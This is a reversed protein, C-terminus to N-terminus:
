AMVGLTPLDLLDRAEDRDMVELPLLTAVIQSLQEPNSRLFVSTDFTVRHGRPTVDNMSLRESINLMVPTLATDLLQRYLDVRNSYTLSSGPVGAGVWIPDLNAERALAIASANRAEVLQLDRANWGMQDAEIVSNLYATSRNARAAEWAELIDDVMAAPLDAGTNKLVVTPMPTESYRLTAAELAAATNIATAGTKLWGGMGDGYFKIVDRTPIRNGLYYFPDSPPYANVDVGLNGGNLDTVDQVRMPMIESPFGDWSRAMVRWYAVDYALLDTVLRQIVASYPLVSSPQELLARPQVPGDTVYERLPFASITHTYTKLAKVFAPVQAATAMTVTNGYSSAIAAILAGAERAHPVPGDLVRQAAQAAEAQDRVIRLSRPFAV